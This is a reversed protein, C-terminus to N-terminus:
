QFPRQYAQCAELTDPISGYKKREEKFIETPFKYKEGVQIVAELAAIMFIDHLLELNNQDAWELVEMDLELEIPLDGWKKHIKDYVVKLDNKTGYLYDLHVWLFPQNQLLNNQRLISDLFSDISGCVRDNRLKGKVLATAGSAFRRDFSDHM